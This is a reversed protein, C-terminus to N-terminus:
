RYSDEEVQDDYYEYYKGAPYDTKNAKTNVKGQKSKDKKISLLKEKTKLFRDKNSISKAKKPKSKRWKLTSGTKIRNKEQVILVILVLLIVILFLITTIEILLTPTSTWGTMEVARDNSSVERGQKLVFDSEPKANTLFIDQINEFLFDNSILLNDYNAVDDLKANISLTQNSSELHMTNSVNDFNKIPAFSFGVVILSLMLTFFSAKRLLFM